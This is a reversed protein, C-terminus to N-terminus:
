ADILFEGGVLLCVVHLFFQEGWCERLVFRQTTCLLLSELNRVRPQSVVIFKSRERRRLERVLFPFKYIYFVFQNIKNQEDFTQTHSMNILRVYVRNHAFM